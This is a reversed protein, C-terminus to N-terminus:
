LFHLASKLIYAIYFLFCGVLALVLFVWIVWVMVSGVWSFGVLCWFSEFRFGVFV